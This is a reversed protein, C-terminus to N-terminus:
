GDKAIGLVDSSGGEAVDVADNSVDKNVGMM